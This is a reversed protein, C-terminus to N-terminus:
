TSPLPSQPSPYCTIHIKVFSEDRFFDIAHINSTTQLIGSYRENRPARQTGLKNKWAREGKESVKGIQETFCGRLFCLTADNRVNVPQCVDVGNKIRRVNAISTELWSSAPTVNLIFRVESRLFTHNWTAMSLSKHAAVVKLQSCLPFLVVM